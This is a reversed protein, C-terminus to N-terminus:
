LGLKVGPPGTPYSETSDRRSRVSVHRGLVEIEEDIALRAEDGRSAGHSAEDLQQPERAPPDGDRDVAVHYGAGGEPRSPEGRAIADFDELGDPSSSDIDSV